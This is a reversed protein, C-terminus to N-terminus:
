RGIQGGTWTVRPRSVSMGAHTSGESLVQVAYRYTSNDIAANIGTVSLAHTTKYATLNPSSDTVLSGLRTFNGSADIQAVQITPMTPLVTDNGAGQINVTVSTLTAGQPMSIDFLMPSASASLTTYWITGGVSGVPAWLTQDPNDPAAAYRTFSTGATAIQTLTLGPFILGIIYILWDWLFKLTLKPTTGPAVEAYLDDMNVQDGDVLV